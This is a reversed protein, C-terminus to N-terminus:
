NFSFLDSDIFCTHFSSAAAGYMKGPIRDRVQQFEMNPNFPAGGPSNQPKMQQHNPAPLNQQSMKRQVQQFEIANSSFQTPM